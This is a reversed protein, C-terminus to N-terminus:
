RRGPTATIRKIISPLLSDFKPMQEPTCLSRVDKFYSIVQQDLEKQQRGIIEAKSEIVSDPISPDYIYTYFQDKTHKMEDFRSRMKGWFAKKKPEFVAIQEPTFGVEKKLKETFGPKKHEEEVRKSLRIYLVAVVINTIILIGIFTLLVRNRSITNM